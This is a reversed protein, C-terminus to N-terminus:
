PEGRYHALAKLANAKAKEIEAATGNSLADLLDVFAGVVEEIIEVVTM